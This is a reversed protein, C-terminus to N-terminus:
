LTLAAEVYNLLINLIGIPPTGNKLGAIRLIGFALGNTAKSLWGMPFIWFMVLIAIMIFREYKMIAFYWKAPLFVHVVRSGDFPPLPIMNFIALSTNLIVGIFLMYALVSLLKAASPVVVAAGGM